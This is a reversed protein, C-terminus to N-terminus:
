GLSQSVHLEQTVHCIDLTGLLRASLNKSHWPKKQTIKFFFSIDKRNYTIKPSVILFIYIRFRNAKNRCCSTPVKKCLIVNCICYLLLRKCRLKRNQLISHNLPILIAYLWWTLASEITNGMQSNILPSTETELCLKLHQKFLITHTILYTTYSFTKKAWTITNVPSHFDQRSTLIYGCDYPFKFITQLSKVMNFHLAQDSPDPRIQLFRLKAEYGLPTLLRSAYTVTFSLAWIWHPPSYKHGSYSAWSHERWSQSSSKQTMDLSKWHTVSNHPQSYISQVTRLFDTSKWDSAYDQQRRLDITSKDAEKILSPIPYVSVM